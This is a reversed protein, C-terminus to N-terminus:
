SEENKFENLRVRLQGLQIIMREKWKSLIATNDHCRQISEILNLNVNPYFTQFFNMVIFKSEDGDEFYFGFLDTEINVDKLEMKPVYMEDPIFHGALCTNSEKRYLCGNGYPCNDLLEFSPKEMTSAYRYAEEFFTENTQFDKIQEPTIATSPM